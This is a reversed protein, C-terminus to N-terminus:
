EYLPFRATLALARKSVDEVAAEGKEIIDSIMDAIEIMEAEKM